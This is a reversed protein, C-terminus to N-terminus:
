ILASILAIKRDFVRRFLEYLLFGGCVFLLANFTRGVQETHRPSIHEWVSFLLPYVQNRVAQLGPDYRYVTDSAETYRAEALYAYEDSAMTPSEVSAIRLVLIAFALLASALLSRPMMPYATM